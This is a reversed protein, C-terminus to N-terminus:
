FRAGVAVPKRVVHQRGTADFFEIQVVYLGVRVMEGQDSSGNWRFFTGSGVTQGQVLTKVKRGAMDFIYADIRANAMTNDFTITAYANLEDAGPIFSKPNVTIAENASAAPHHVSNQYGPTAYGVAGAASSWNAPDNTPAESSLRELSVGKVAKLLTSHYDEHYDFRDLLQGSENKIIVGGSVNPYAPLGTELFAEQKGAPYDAKLLTASETLVLFSGPALIRTAATITKFDNPQGTTSNVNGLQWNSLDLHKESRNYIEVFDVGGSRPNFLVENIVVDLSDSPSPLVFTASTDDGSSINGRCDVLGAVSVTYTTGPRIIETTLVSFRNNPGEASLVSTAGLSPSFAIVTQEVALFVRESLRIEVLSDALPIAELMRAPMGDGISGNVANRQGPTGGAPHTSPKWNETSACPLAPDIIELSWGGDRKNGEGFLADTYTMNHLLTEARYLALEDGDNKLAPFSSVGLSQGYSSFLTKATNSCLIVHASPPLAGKPLSVVKDGVKLSVDNHSIWESTANYIEIFEAEPLGQSPDPDPMIESIVLEGFMPPRGVGLLFEGPEMVNGSCDSLGSVSVMYEAGAKLASSLSVIVSHADEDLVFSTVKPGEAIEVLLGTLSADNLWESCVLALSAPGTAAVSTVGPAVSDLSSPALSNAAGPTGGLEHQSAAWNYFPGCPSDGSIRELAYGGDDKSGDKYWTSTFVVHDVQSGFYNAVSLSDGSNTISAWGPLGLAKGYEALIVVDAASCLILYEGPSLTGEGLDFSKDSNVFRLTSLAFTKTSNNFIEVYETEPLGATPTPDAMIETILVEGPQPITPASFTFPITDPKMENGALDELRKVILSYMSGNALEGAFGLGVLTQAPNKFEVREPHGIGELVFHNLSLATPTSVPESFSVTVESFLRPSVSVVTPPTQDIVFSVTQDPIRRGWVDYVGSFTLALSQDAPLSAEFYSRILKPNDSDSLVVFPTLPGPAATIKAAVLSDANVPVTLLLEAVAPDKSTVREVFSRYVFSISDLPGIALGDASVLKEFGLVYGANNQMKGATTVELQYPKAGRSVSAIELDGATINANAVNESLPKNFSVVLQTESVAFVNGPRLDENDVTFLSEGMPNGAFDTLNHIKLQLGNVGPVPQSFDLQVKSSDPLLRHAVAPATPGFLYNTTDGASHPSVPESFTVELSMPSVVQAAVIRPALTDYTFPRSVARATANGFRDKQNTVTLEQVIEQPFSQAFTLRVTKQDVSLTASDPSGHGKWNYNSVAEAAARQLPEDFTVLLRFADVPVVSTIAPARTDYQFVYDPTILAAGDKDRLNSVSLIMTKNAAFNKSFVLRASQPGSAVVKVPQVNGNLLYNTNSLLTQSSPTKSFTVSLFNPGEVVVADIHQAVLFELYAAEAMGNELTDKLAAVQLRYTQGLALPTEFELLVASADAETLNAKAPAEQIESLFYNEEKEAEVEQLPEDFHLLLSSLSRVTIRQLVPPKMDYFFRYSADALPNGSCDALGTLSIAYERESILPASLVIELIQDSSFSIGGIDLDDSVAAIGEIEGTKMKENFHIKLATNDIVELSAIGPPTTDPSDNHQSNQAGPTAGKQDTSVAWNSGAECAPKPNIKELSWGGDKESDLNWSSSFVVEDVTNGLQDKLIIPEGSNTLGNWSSVAVAPGIAQYDALYNAPVLAVYQGPGLTHSSVIGGSLNFGSISVSHGSPNFIEVFEAGSATPLILPDPSVGKPNPDAFIETIILAGPLTAKSVPVSLTLGGAVANGSSNYVGSVTLQYTYNLFNEAFTLTVSKNDSAPVLANVPNGFGDDVTFNSTNGASTEDIAQNFVVTLQNEGMAAVSEIALPQYSFNLQTPNPSLSVLAADLLDSLTLLYSGAVFPSSFTLLVSSPDAELTATSPSGLGNNVSYNSINGGTSADLAKNFRVRLQSNSVVEVEEAVLPVVFDFDRTTGAELQSNGTSNSFANPFTLTYSQEQLTTGLTLRVVKQDDPDLAAAVPNGVGGNIQYNNVEGAVAADVEDNFTLTVQTSSPTVIDSLSLQTYSFQRILNGEFVTGTTEDAISSITLTYTETSLNSTSLEVVSHDSDSREAGLVTAGHDMIYNSALESTLEDVAQNFQIQILNKSKVSVSRVDLSTKVVVDDFSYSSKNGSSYRVYFGFYSANTHTLDVNTGESIFNSGGSTDRMLEWSGDASRIVKISVDVTSTNLVGDEGDILNTTSTGAQKYLSVEDPTGGLLVFYGNLDGLLDSSNSLLYVRVFNQSSPNHNMKVRFEWTTNGLSTFPTSIFSYNTTGSASANDLQLEFDDNVTFHGNPDTWIPNASFDGDSFDDIVQGYAALTFQLLFAFGSVYIKSPM